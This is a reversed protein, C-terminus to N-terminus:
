GDFDFAEHLRRVAETLSRGSPQANPTDTM